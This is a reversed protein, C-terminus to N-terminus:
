RIVETAQFLLPPPITLGLAQATKLNIVLEFTTPQEVPLDAPKAGKLIKDVYAATRQFEEVRDRAYSMLGGAAVYWRAHYIAPLQRRAVLDVIQRHHADFRASPLALLADVRATTLAALAPELASPDAVEALHLEVGLARAAREAERLMAPATLSGSPALVGVRSVGPVAEKLLALRKSILDTQLNTVGTINGGPRALSTVFGAQVPDGGTVMVIPITTTAQKAARAPSGGAAVILDVPLRVLEAALAPLRDLDGAAFRSEVTITRGEVWGLAQLTQSFLQQADVGPYIEAPTDAWLVGIRAIKGASQTGAPPPAALLGLALIVMLMAPSRSAPLM